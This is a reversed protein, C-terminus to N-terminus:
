RFGDLLMIDSGKSDLHSYFISQGDPSVSLTTVDTHPGLHALERTEGTELDLSTITATGPDFFVLSTGRVDWAFLDERGELVAAIEGGEPPVSWIGGQRWFFIDGNEAVTPRTGGARTILSPEGGESPVRWIQREGERDTQFYIWEGDPSWDPIACPHEGPTLEHSSGGAADMVYVSCRHPTGGCSNFAIRTGDPSWRPAFAHGMRTTQRPDSGDLSQTWLEWTGSRGSVFALQRGNPSLEPAFDNWTSAALLRPAPRETAGPGGIVWINEDDFDRAFVLRDRRRAVSPHAARQAEGIEARRTGALDVRELHRWEWTLGVSLVLSEGDGSWDLGAMMGPASLVLNPEGGGVAVTYVDALGGSLARL